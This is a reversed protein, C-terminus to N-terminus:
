LKVWEINESDLIIEIYRNINMENYKKRVCIKRLHYKNEHWKIKAHRWVVDQADIYIVKRKLNWSGETRTFFLSDIKLIDLM